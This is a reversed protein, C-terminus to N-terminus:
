TAHHREEIWARVERDCGFTYTRNTKYDYFQWYCNGLCDRKQQVQPENRNVILSRKINQFIDISFIAKKM